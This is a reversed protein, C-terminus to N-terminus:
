RHEHSCALAMEFWLRGLDNPQNEQLQGLVSKAKKLLEGGSSTQGHLLEVQAGYALAICACHLNYADGAQALLQGASELDGAQFKSLGAIVSPWEPVYRESGYEARFALAEVDVLFAAGADGQTALPFLSVLRASDPFLAPARQSRACVQRYAPYDEALAFIVALKLSWRPISSEATEWAFVPMATVAHLATAADQWRRNRAHAFVEDIRTKVPLWRQREFVLHAADLKPSPVVEPLLSAALQRALVCLSFDIWREGLDGTRALQQLLIDASAYTQGAGERDGAQTLAAALMFGALARDHGLPAGDVLTKLHSPATLWQGELLALLAAAFEREVPSRKAIPKFVAALAERAQSDLM